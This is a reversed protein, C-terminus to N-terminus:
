EVESYTKALLTVLHRRLDHDLRFVCRIEAATGSFMRMANTCGCQYVAPLDLSSPNCDSVPLHGTKNHDNDEDVLGIGLAGPPAKKFISERTEGTASHAAM